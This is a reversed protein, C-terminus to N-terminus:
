WPKEEITAVADKIMLEAVAVLETDQKDGIISVVYANEDQAITVIRGDPLIYSKVNM